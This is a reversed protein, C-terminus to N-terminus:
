PVRGKREIIAMLHDSARELINNNSATRTYGTVNRLQKRVQEPTVEYITAAKGILEEITRIAGLTKSNVVRATEDPEVVVWSDDAIQMEQLEEFYRYLHGAIREHTYPILGGCWERRSDQRMSLTAHADSASSFRVSIAREPFSQSPCEKVYTGYPTATFGLGTLIAILEQRTM